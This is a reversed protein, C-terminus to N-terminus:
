RGSGPARGSRGAAPRRSRGGCRGPATSSSPAMGHLEHLRKAYGCCTGTFCARRDRLDVRAGEVASLDDRALDGHRAFTPPGTFCTANRTSPLTRHISRERREREGAALAARVRRGGCRCACARAARTRPSTTSAGGREDDAHLVLRERERPRSLGFCFTSPRHRHLRRVPPGARARQQVEVALLDVVVRRGTDRGSPCSARALVAACTPARRGRAPRDRRASPRSPGPRLCRRPRGGFVRRRRDGFTLGDDPTCCQRTASWRCHRARALERDVATARPLATRRARRTPSPCSRRPAPSACAARARPRCPRCRRRLLETVTWRDRRGRRRVSGPTSCCSAPPSGSRRAARASGPSGAASRRPRSASRPHARERAAAAAVLPARRRRRRADRALQRRDRARAGPVLDLHAQAAPIGHAAFAGHVPMALAVGIALGAYALAPPAAWRRGALVLSGAGLLPVTLLAGAAYYVRFARGDWQAAEGWAIAAAAVAYAALSCAWVALEPRRTARWRRPSCGPSGCLSCRPPSLSFPM